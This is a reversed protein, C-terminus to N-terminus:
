RQSNPELAGRVRALLAHLDFPKALFGQIAGAPFAAAADARGSLVLAPVMGDPARSRADALVAPAGPGPIHMDLILLQPRLGGALLGIAQTGDQATVM